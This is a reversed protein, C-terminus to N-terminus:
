WGPHLREALLALVRTSLENSLAVMGWDHKVNRGSDNSMQRGQCLLAKLAAIIIRLEKM